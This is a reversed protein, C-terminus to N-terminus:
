GVIHMGLGVVILCLYLFLFLLFCIKWLLKVAKVFQIDTNNKWQLLIVITLIALIFILIFGAVSLEFLYQVILAVAIIYLVTSWNVAKHLAQKASLRRIKLVFLYVFLTFIVPITIFFAIINVIFDILRIRK